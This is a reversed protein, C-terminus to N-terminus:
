RAACFPPVRAASSAEDAFRDREAPDRTWSGRLLRVVVEAGSVSSAVFVPGTGPMGSIRGSLRYRGVRDPDEARLPTVNPM